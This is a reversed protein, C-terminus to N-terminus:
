PLPPCVYYIEVQHGGECPVRGIAVAEDAHQAVVDQYQQIRSYDSAVIVEEDTLFTVYYATWYDSRAFRIGNSVLYDILMARPTPPSTYREVAYGIHGAANFTAWFLCSLLSGRRALDARREVKLYLATVGVLGILALLTYRPYM